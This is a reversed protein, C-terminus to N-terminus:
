RPTPFLPRATTGFRAWGSLAWRAHLTESAFFAIAGALGCLPITWLVLWSALAGMLTGAIISNIVGVVATGTLLIQWRTPVVGMSRMRGRWDDNPSLVFYTRVEPVVEAYFHHIRNIGGLYFYDEISSELVRGFTAVGLFLLTPLLILTFVQFALGMSSIQGVFALAILTSSVMGLFIAIRGNTESVTNARAGQLTFHETTLIQIARATQEDSMSTLPPRASIPEVGAGSAERVLTTV